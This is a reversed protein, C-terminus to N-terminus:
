GSPTFSSSFRRASRAPPGAGLRAILANAADHKVGAGGDHAYVLINADIFELPM